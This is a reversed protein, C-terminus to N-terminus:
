FDRMLWVNSSINQKSYAVRSGDPSPIAWGLQNESDELLPTVHGQRDINVIASVGKPTRAHVWLSKGTDAGSKKMPTRQYQLEERSLMRKSATASRLMQSQQM